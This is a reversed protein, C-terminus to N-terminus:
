WKIILMKDYYYHCYYRIRCACACWDTRLHIRNVLLDMLAKIYNFEIHKAMLFTQTQQQRELPFHIQHNQCSFAKDSEKKREKEGRDTTHLEFLVAINLTYLIDVNLNITIM